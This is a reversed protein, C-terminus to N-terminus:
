VYETSELTKLSKFVNSTKLLKTENTQKNDNIKDNSIIIDDMIDDVINDINDTLAVDYEGKLSLFSMINQYDNIKMTDPMTYIKDVNDLIDIYPLMNNDCSTIIIIMKKHRLPKRMLSIITNLTSNEFRRGCSNWEIIKELSDIVLIGVDSNVCKDYESTIYETRNFVRILKDPRIVKVCLNSIDKAIEKVANMALSTKGTHSEGKLLLSLTNGNKVKKIKNKIDNYTNAIGSWLYIDDYMILDDFTVGNQPQIDKLSNVFDEQTVIPNMENKNVENKMVNDLNLERSIAFSKANTVLGALEAGTFNETNHAILALDVNEHLHGTEKMKSTHIELIELRGNIDPLKIEIQLELRGPRKLAEDIIDIRNTMCILLINNLAKPGEIMSLFQNVVNNGVNSGENSSNNRKKAIADFEDCIIVYFKKPNDFAPMFLNRVNEESQGVYKNLLEPGRVIIPKECNLIQSMKVAFLTKGCGPVGYLIMGKIHKMDMDKALKNGIMRTSFARRFIMEFDKSFGGIGINKLDFSEKFLKTDVDDISEKEIYTKRDGEINSNNSDEEVKGKLTHVDKMYSAKILRREEPTKANKILEYSDNVLKTIEADLKNKKEDYNHIDSMITSSSLSPTSNKEEMIKVNIKKSKDLVYFSETPNNVFLIKYTKKTRMIIEYENKFITSNERMSEIIKEFLDDEYTTCVVNSLYKIIVYLNNTTVVNTMENIPEIYIVDNLALSLMKRHVLNIRIKTKDMRDDYEVSFPFDFIKVHNSNNFTNKNHKSVIVKNKLAEFEDTSSDVSLQM